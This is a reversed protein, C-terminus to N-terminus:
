IKKFEDKLQLLELREAQNNPSTYDQLHAMTLNNLLIYKEEADSGDFLSIVITEDLLSVEKYLDFIEPEYEKLQEMNNNYDELLEKVLDIFNDKDYAIVQDDNHLQIQNIANIISQTDM